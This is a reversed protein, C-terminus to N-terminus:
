KKLARSIGGVALKTLIEQLNNETQELSGWMKFSPGDLRGQFETSATKCLGFKQMLKHTPTGNGVLLEVKLDIKNAMFPLSEDYFVTGNKSYILIDPTNFELKKVVINMDKENRAVEVAASNYKMEMFLDMLESATGVENVRGGLLSGGIKALGSVVTATKGTDSQKDVLRITGGSGSISLKGCVRSALHKMNAGSGYLEGSASFLGDILKNASEDFVKEVDLNKLSIQSTKFSYPLKQAAAFELLASMEFPADLLNASLNKLSVKSKDTSLSANLNKVLENKNSKVKAIKANLSINKGFDWIAKEDPIDDSFAKANNASELSPREYNKKEYLPSTESKSASEAQTSDKSSGGEPSKFLQALIALDDIVLLKSKLDASIDTESISINLNADTDGKTSRALLDANTSIKAFDESHEAKLKLVLTNIKGSAGGSTLNAIELSANAKGASYNLKLAGNGSKINSFKALCPQRMMQVISLSSELLFSNVFKKELDFNLQAHANGIPSSAESFSANSLKAKVTGDSLSATYDGSFNINQLLKEESKEFGFGSIGFNGALDYAGNKESVSAKLSLSKAEVNEILPSIIGFPFDKIQASLFTQQKHSFKGSKVDYELPCLTKINVLESLKGEGIQISLEELKLADGKMSFKSSSNATMSHLSKPAATKSILPKLSGAMEAKGKIEGSQAARFVSASLRLTEGEAGDFINLDIKAQSDTNKFYALDASIKSNLGSIIKSEGKQMCLNLSSFPSSSALRIDGEKSVSLEMRGSIDNGSFKVDGSFMNVLRLPLGNLSVSLLNDGATSEPKKLNIEFAKPTSISLLIKGKEALAANAKNVSLSDGNKSIESDIEISLAGLEKLEPALKEFESASNKSLIQAEIKEGFNKIKAAAYIKSSFVPLKKLPLNKLTSNKAEISIKVDSDAYDESFSGTMKLVTEEAIKALAKLSIKDGEPSIDFEFSCTENLKKSQSLVDVKVRGSTPILKKNTEIGGGSVAIKFIDGEETEIEFNMEAKGLKFIWDLEFPESEKLTESAKGASAKSSQEKISAKEGSEGSKVIKETKENKAAKSLKLRANKLKFNEVEITKFALSALSYSADIKEISLEGGEFPIKLESASASSFGVGLTKISAGNANEALLDNALQTQWSPRMVFILASALTVTFLALLALIIKITKKM